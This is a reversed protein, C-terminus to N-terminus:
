NDIITVLFTGKLICYPITPIKNITIIINSIASSGHGNDVLVSFNDTGSYNKEPTYTWTGDANVILKGHSADSFMSYTLKNGNPDIGVVIGSVPTNVLTTINYNPVLVNLAFKTVFVDSYSTSTGNYIRNYAGESTPFNSSNTQGTVYVNGSSDIAIGNGYDNYSGGLFTSYVLATGSPNLKTVFADYYGVSSLTTSYAGPTTPFNSSLTQGTIYTNGFRDLVIGYGRDENSGGLFTSYVIGSGNPNLKTIFVDYYGVSNLTTDYAGPTTPFNNSRTYGTIYANGESDIAIGKGSDTDRGGLYTSYVLQTGSPNLKTVFADYYGISNYTTDYAGETTPFNNSFTQGTIYANGIMDLAIGSGIDINTGGLFTSYVLSTGSSNLKAVFADYGGNLTRDYAGETTPFTNNNTQGAIYANGEVDIAIANGSDTGTGGLFTSYVLDTGTSNLKTIFVDYNGNFSGDYAGETTPFNNSATTGTIYVNDENDITISYGIDDDNGGLFTSYVLATGSPNLKTIFVDFVGSFSGNYSGETTPFNNSATTGTIYANGNKDTTIGYGIEGNSGGLFTSYSLVPDIRLPISNNYKGLIFGVNRNRRIEYSSKIEQQKGNIDQYVIPKLLKLRGTKTEVILHGDKDVEINEAGEFSLNIVKPDINPQVIFDHELQHENGYYILDIGPYIEKYKIRRYTPVNTIWKETDKDILYNFRGELLEEGIIEIDSNSGEMKMKLLNYKNSQEELPKRVKPSISNEKKGEQLTFIVENPTFFATYERGRTLFRIHNAKQGMNLEFSFPLNILSNIQYM